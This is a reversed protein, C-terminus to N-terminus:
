NVIFIGLSVIITSVLYFVWLLRLRLETIWNYGGDKFSQVVKSGDYNGGDRIAKEINDVRQIALRMTERQTLELVLCLFIVAIGWYFHSFLSLDITSSAQAGLLASEILLMWGRIKFIHEEHRAVINQLIKIEEMALKNSDQERSFDLQM